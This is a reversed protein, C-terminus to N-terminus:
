FCWKNAFPIPAPFVCLSLLPKGPNLVSFLQSDFAFSREWQFIWSLFWLFGCDFKAEIEGFSERESIEM